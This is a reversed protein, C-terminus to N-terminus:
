RNPVKKKIKSFKLHVIDSRHLDINSLRTVNKCKKLNWDKLIKRFSQIDKRWRESLPTNKQYGWEPQFERQDVPLKNM